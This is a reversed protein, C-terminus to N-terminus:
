ITNAQEVEIRQEGALTNANDRESRLNAREQRAAVLADAQHQQQASLDAIQLRALALEAQLEVALTSIQELPRLPEQSSPAPM